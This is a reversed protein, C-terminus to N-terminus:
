KQEETPKPRKSKLYATLFMHKIYRKDAGSPRKDSAEWDGDRYAGGRVQQNAVVARVAPKNNSADPKLTVKYGVDARFVIFSTNAGDGDKYYKAAEQKMRAIDEKLQKKQAMYEAREQAEKEQEQKKYAEDLARRERDRADKAAQEAAAAARILDAQATSIGDSARTNITAFLCVALSVQKINVAM